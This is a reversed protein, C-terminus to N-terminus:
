SPHAIVPLEFTLSFSCGNDSSFQSQGKLKQTVMDILKMGFSNKKVPTTLGPGNDSFWVHLKGNDEQYGINLAPDNSLPFAYKCANTVLENLLLGLNIASDADLWLPPLTYFPQVYGYSFSRLVGGVLEPVYQVLDIEVLRDGDYLRQHVLAMAEVRLLSEEVAKRATEDTLRNFQLGLLNTISQLNNKVRHNQEKVLKANQESLRRYKRFLWYYVACAIGTILFLAMILVTLLTQTKLNEQRLALEKQQTKLQAEKKENEYQFGARAIAGERDANLAEIRLLFSKQQHEFALKWQGTQRYVSSYLEHLEKNQSYDGHQATDRVFTAYDLWKKALLPQRAVVYWNALALSSNIIGYALGIQLNITYAKKLYSLGQTRDHETLAKGLLLSINAIDLPKKLTLAIHEAKRLYYFTSDFSTAVGAKARATSDPKYLGGVMLYASMMGHLSRVQQFNTIARRTYHVSLEHQNQIFQNEALRLYVKGIAESPGRPERIRLSRIFWKQATVYDGLASYRKGMLYCVEAVQMSDGTAMTARYEQQTQALKDYLHKGIPPIQASTHLAM